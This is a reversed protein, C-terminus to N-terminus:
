DRRTSCNGKETEPKPASIQNEASTRRRACSYSLNRKVRPTPEEHHGTKPGAAAASYRWLIERRSGEARSTNHPLNLMAVQDQNGQQDTEAGLARLNRDHQSNKNKHAFVETLHFDTNSKSNGSRLSLNKSNKNYEQPPNETM